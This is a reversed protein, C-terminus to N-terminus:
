WVSTFDVIETITQGFKVQASCGARVQEGPQVVFTDSYALVIRCMKASRQLNESIERIYKTLIDLSSGIHFIWTM